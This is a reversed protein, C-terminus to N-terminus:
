ANTRIQLGYLQAFVKAHPAFDGCYLIPHPGAYFRNSPLWANAIPEMLKWKRASTLQIFVTICQM